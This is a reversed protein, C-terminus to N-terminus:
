RKAEFSGFGKSRTIHMENRDDLVICMAEFQPLKEILAMGEQVGLVSVAAGLLDTTMTDPGIVTVSSVGEATRGTRPDVIHSYRRGHIEEFREYNGSTSVSRDSLELVTILAEPSRPDQVGIRWPSGSRALGVARIEGSVSVLASRVGRGVLLRAVEDAIYGKGLGGLDLRMGEVPLSVTRASPNLVIRGANLLPKVRALEEPTPLRNLKGCTQWLEVLPGVAIDFTGMTRGHWLVGAEIVTYLDNSVAVPGHGARANLRSLESDPKQFSLTRDLDAIRDFGAAIHGHAKQEDQAVVTLTVYTGLMTRTESVAAAGPSRRSRTVAFIAAFVLALAVL